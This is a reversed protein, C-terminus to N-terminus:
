TGKKATTVRGSLKNLSFSWSTDKRQRYQVTLQFPEHSASVVSSPYFVAWYVDSPNGSVPTVGAAEAVDVPISASRGSGPVNQWESFTGDPKFVAMDLRMSCPQDPITKAKHARCDVVARVPKQSNAAKLRAQQMLSAMMTTSTRARTFPTIDMMAPVAIATLVALVVIVVLMELLSFGPRGQSFNSIRAPPRKKLAFRRLLNFRNIVPRRNPHIYM